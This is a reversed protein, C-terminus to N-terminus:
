TLPCWASEVSGRTRSPLHYRDAVHVADHLLRQGLVAIQRRAARGEHLCAERLKDCAQGRHAEVTFARPRRQREACMRTNCRRGAQLSRFCQGRHENKDGLTRKCLAPALVALGDRCVVEDPGQLQARFKAVVGRNCPGVSLSVAGDFCGGSEGFALTQRAGWKCPQHEQQHPRARGGKATRSIRARCPEPSWDRLKLGVRGMKAAAGCRVLPLAM